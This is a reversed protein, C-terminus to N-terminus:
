EKVRNLEDLLKKVDIGYLRAVDGIKLSGIEYAAMPCTLCPLRHKALIEAGRPMRMIEEVTTNETVRKQQNM